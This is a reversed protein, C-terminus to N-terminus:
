GRSQAPLDGEPGQQPRNPPPSLRGHEQAPAPTPAPTPPASQPKVRILFPRAFYTSCAMDPNRHFEWHLYVNGDPSVIEPPAAGFPSSRQVSELASVDFMTSGSARTVGMRVIRGEAQDLVIELNTHLDPRNLVHDAPLSDLSALFSEAFSGHIRQHMKNLFLAFPVAATNLATQNGPQVSAVYNEIASRWRELGNTHWSGRHKSRRREGDAQREQALRQAGIAELASLPTLNPNLGGPTLGLNGFARPDMSRRGGDKPRNAQARRAIQASQAEQQPAISFVGGANNITEPAKDVADKQAQAIQGKSRPLEPNPTAKTSNPQGAQGFAVVREPLTQPKAAPTTQNEARKGEQTSSPEKDPAGARDESHALENRESDGPDQAPGGHSTGPTPKPDNQDRSTIRAQTEEAVHNAQQGIFQANPNDKQNKDEVHQDVAVRRDLQLPEVPVPTVPEPKKEPAKKAEKPKEPEPEPPQKRKDDQPPAKDAPPKAAPDDAPKPEDKPQPESQEEPPASPPAKEDPIISIESDDLLSIEIRQNERQIHQRVSDALRAIDARDELVRMSQEAGGGWILHALVATAIWLFLPISAERRM